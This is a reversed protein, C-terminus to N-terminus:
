PIKKKERERNLISKLLNQSGSANLNVSEHNQIKYYIKNGCM